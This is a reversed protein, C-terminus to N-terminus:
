TMNIGSDEDMDEDDSFEPTQFRDLYQQVQDDTLSCFNGDGNDGIIFLPGFYLNGDITRNGDMGSIRGEENCILVANSDFPYAPEFHGQVAHQIAHLKDAIEAQYAPKEPELMVVRLLNDPKTTKSADFDISEFGVSDCFFCGRLYNNSNETIEVVDSVSLSHGRHTPPHDLNFLEYINELTKCDVEGDFVENYIESHVGDIGFQRLDKLGQFKAHKADKAQDIQYIKIKM